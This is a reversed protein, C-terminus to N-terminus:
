RTGTSKGKSWKWLSFVASAPTYDSRLSRKTYIDGLPPWGPYIVPLDGSHDRPEQFNQLWVAVSGAACFYSIYISKMYADVCAGTVCQFLTCGFRYQPLGRSAKRIGKSGQITISTSKNAWLSFIRVFILSLIQWRPCPLKEINGEAWEKSTRTWLNSHPCSVRNFCLQAQMQDCPNGLPILGM